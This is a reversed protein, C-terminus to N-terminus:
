PPAEPQLPVISVHGSRSWFEAAALAAGTNEEHAQAWLLGPPLQNWGGAGQEDTGHAARTPLGDSFYFPSGLDAEADAGSLSLRGGAARQGSSDLVLALAFGRDEDQSLDGRRLLLEFDFRGLLRYLVPRAGEGAARPLFLLTPMLDPASVELYGRFAADLELRLVGAADPAAVAPAGESCPEDAMPCLRLELDVVDLRSREPLELELLYLAAPKGGSSSVSSAPEPARALPRDFSPESAAAASAGSERRTAVSGVPAAAQCM